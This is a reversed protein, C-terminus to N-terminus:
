FVKGIRGPEGDYWRAERRQTSEGFVRDIAANDICGAVPLPTGGVGGRELEGVAAMLAVAIDCHSDGIKPIEVTASGARYKTRLRGLEVILQQDDPLEIKRTYIRARVAQAARTRSEAAWPRVSAHIGHKAFEHVVTGPLHQDVVV